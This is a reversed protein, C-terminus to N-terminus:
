IGRAAMYNVLDAVRCAYGWENDYWSMVKAMGDIVMTLPGDVIGSRDDGRFDMSVLPEESYGLYGKMEGGAAKKFAANIEEATAAKELEVTLDVISVTPTPVRLAIGTLRGKLEPLVLFIARAAGTSAPIINV